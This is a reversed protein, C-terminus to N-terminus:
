IASGEQYEATGGCFGGFTKRFDMVERNADSVDDTEGSIWTGWLRRLVSLPGQEKTTTMLRNDRWDLYGQVGAGGAGVEPNKFIM